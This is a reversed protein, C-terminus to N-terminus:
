RLLVMKKTETPAGAKIFFFYVGSPYNEADWILKHEGASQDSEIITEVMRGLINYIKITVDSSQALSYQITTQANFPNPFNSRLCLVKPNGVVEEAIHTPYIEIPDGPTMDQGDFGPYDPPYRFIKFVRNGVAPDGQNMPGKGNVPNIYNWVIDSDHTVEFFNGGPGDCILTNGNLLRHAGSLNEAYFDPPNESSYVWIPEEPGYPSGPTLYYYGEEDVPPAIEDITSYSGGPRRRGNNFILINEEGPLGPRIWRADHQLFLSQDDEEGSDYAQSNGWRYLLDGGKGYRGGSHGAAEETTTSHDIVAIESFSHFSLLIQDFDQHYDISNTHPWDRGINSVNVFNIDILEPHEAINGFNAKTSDYDQILHDWLHWEWVINGNYLGDPEIEIIHDPLLHNSTPMLAPNRGAQIAEEQSKYEWAIMLVNGNPLPEIDHHLLYLESAYEFEWVLSGDWLLEQVFRGQGGQPFDPNSEAKGTRLINGNELLYVSIGPRYDSEWSNVLLGNNDILYTVTYPLPAFLTYGVYASDGNLILGITTEQANVMAFTLIFVIIIVYYIRTNL